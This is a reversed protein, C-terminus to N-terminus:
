EIEARNLGRGHTPTHHVELKEAIRRAPEPPFAEDLSALQPTNLNDMVRVVTQAECHLEEVRWRLVAAIDVATRRETVLM